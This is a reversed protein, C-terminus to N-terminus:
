SHHRRVEVWMREYARMRAAAAGRNVADLDFTRWMLAFGHEPYRRYLEIKWRQM